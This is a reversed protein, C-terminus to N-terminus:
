STNGALAPIIGMTWHVCTHTESHEGCARPHDWAPRLRCLRHSTNGALAPIIGAASSCLSNSHHTGRLRPSSGSHASMARRWPQTNGALAPIIGTFPTSKHSASRTGRLRPSSGPEVWVTEPPGDHEGCARPHDWNCNLVYQPPYTNGALAPIIRQFLPQHRMFGLTGRLRPSSGPFIASTRYSYYHEGCARPHDGSSIIVMGCGSTNGALAPIIGDFDIASDYEGPTGRLRPSSGLVWVPAACFDTHEGCARPHDGVHFLLFLFRKTNGALAPIIGIWCM